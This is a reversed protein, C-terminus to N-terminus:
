YFPSSFLIHGSKYALSKNLSEWSINLCGYHYKSIQTPLPSSSMTNFSRLYLLVTPPCIKNMVFVSTMLAKMRRGTQSQVWNGNDKINLPITVQSPVFQNWQPNAVIYHPVGAARKVRKQVQSALAFTANGKKLGNAQESCSCVRRGIIILSRWMTWLERMVSSDALM